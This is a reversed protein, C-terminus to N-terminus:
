PFIAEVFAEADFPQLDEMGEGVGIFKVPIGLEDVVSVQLLGLLFIWLHSLLLPCNETQKQLLATGVVCGGRATGDLKTLIFGTVGVVQVLSM